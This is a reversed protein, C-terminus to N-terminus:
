PTAGPNAELLRHEKLARRRWAAKPVDPLQVELDDLEAYSTAVSQDFHVYFVGDDDAGFVLLGADFLLHLDARLLLGNEATSPGGAAYPAIHAAQLTEVAECGSVACTERPAKSASLMNSLLVVKSM